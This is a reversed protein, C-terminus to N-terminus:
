FDPDALRAWVRWAVEVDRYVIGPEVEDPLNERESVSGASAPSNAHVRVSVRPACEFRLEQARVTATIEVDPQQSM